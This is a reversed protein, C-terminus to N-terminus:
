LLFNVRSSLFSRYGKSSKSSSCRSFKKLKLNFGEVNNNTRPSSDTEFHNWFEVPFINSEFYTKVFYDLFKTIKKDTCDDPKPRNNLISDFHDDVQNRPIVALIFISKFWKNITDNEQYDTKLGCASFKKAISQGWHFM